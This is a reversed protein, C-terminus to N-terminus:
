ELTPSGHYTETSFSKTPSFVATRRELKHHLAKLEVNQSSILSRMEELSLRMYKDQIRQLDVPNGAKAQLLSLNMPFETKMWVQVDKNALAPLRFLASEPCIQFIAAGCQLRM